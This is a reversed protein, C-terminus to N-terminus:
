GAILRLAVWAVSAACLVGIAVDRWFALRPPANFFFRDLAKM